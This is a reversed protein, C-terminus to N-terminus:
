EYEDSGEEVIMKVIVGSIKHMFITNEQVKYEIYDGRDIGNNMINKVNIDYQNDYDIYSRLTSEVEEETLYDGLDM